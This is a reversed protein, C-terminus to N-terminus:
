LGIVLGASVAGSLRTGGAGLDIGGRRAVLRGDVRVGVREIWGAPRTRLWVRVGGGAHLVAGTEVLARGAYLQRLYGAGAEAFPEARGGAFALRPLRLVIAGDVVYETFGAAATVDPAQEADGSVRTSVSARAWSGGAELAVRRGLRVAVRAEVGRAPTVRSTTTFLTFAGGGAQNRTEDAPRAGLAAGGSWMGAISAEVRPGPSQALAPAAALGGCVVAWAAVRAVRM